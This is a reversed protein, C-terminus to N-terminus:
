SGCYLRFCKYSQISKSKGELSNVEDYKENLKNFKKNRDKGKPMNVVKKYEKRQIMTNYRKLLEGLCANYIQRGINLRKDM